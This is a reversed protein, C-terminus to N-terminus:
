IHLSTIHKITIFTIYKNVKSEYIEQKIPDHVEKVYPNFTIYHPDDM